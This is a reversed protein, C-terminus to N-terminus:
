APPVRTSRSAGRRLLVFGSAGALVVLGAAGSVIALMAWSDAGSVPQGAHVRPQTPMAGATGPVALTVLVALVIAARLGYRRHLTM